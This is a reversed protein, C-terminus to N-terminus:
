LYDFIWRALGDRKAQAAELSQREQFADNDRIHQHIHEDSLEVDVEDRFETTLNHLVVCSAVVRAANKPSQQPLTSLLIRFRGKLRGFAREVINRTSAHVKNFKRQIHSGEDHPYPTILNTRLAYGADGLLHYGRPLTEAVLTNTTSLSWLVKDSCSGPRLSIELFKMSADCIGQMNFATFGKRCYWGEYDRPRNIQILSGDIAGVVRPFKSIRQFKKSETIRNM